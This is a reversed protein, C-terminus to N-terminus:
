PEAGLCIRGRLAARDGHREASVAGATRRPGLAALVPLRRRHPGVGEPRRGFARGFV